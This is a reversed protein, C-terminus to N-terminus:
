MQWLKATSKHLIIGSIGMKYPLFIGSTGNKKDICPNARKVCKAM